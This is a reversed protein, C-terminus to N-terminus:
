IEMRGVGREHVRVQIAQEKDLAVRREEMEGHLEGVKKEVHFLKWLLYRVVLARRDEQM